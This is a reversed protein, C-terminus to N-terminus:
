SHWDKLVERFERRVRHRAYPLRDQLRDRVRLHFLGRALPWEKDGVIQRRAQAALAAVVAPPRAAFPAPPNVGLLDRALALGLWLVRGCGADKARVALAHGDIDPHTGLLAAVDCIWGLREWCHKAGHVCLVLLLDEPALTLMSMGGVRVVPAREWLGDMDLPLPFFRPRFAWHLEVLVGDSARGLNYECDSRLHEVEESRDRFRHQPQFEQAVLLDRARLVDGPRVLLDLDGCARHGLDGYLTAALVPGKYPLAPLGHSAFAALMATLTDLLQHNRATNLRSLLRLRERVALPVSPNGHLCRHLVPILGQQQAMQVLLDWRFPHEAGPLSVDSLTASASSVPVNMVRRACAILLEGEPHDVLSQRLKFQWERNAM